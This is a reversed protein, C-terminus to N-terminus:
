CKSVPCYNQFSRWLSSKPGVQVESRSKLMSRSNIVAPKEVARLDSANIKEWAPWIEFNSFGLNQNLFSFMCLVSSLSCLYTCFYRLILLTPQSSPPRLTERFRIQWCPRWLPTQPRLHPRPVAAGRQGLGSDPRIAGRLAEPGGSLPPCRAKRGEKVGPRGFESTGCVFDPRRKFIDGATGAPLGVWVGESLVSTAWDQTKMPGTVM